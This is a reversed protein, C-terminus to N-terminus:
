CQRLCLERTEVCMRVNVHVAGLRVAGKRLTACIIVEHLIRAIQFSGSMDTILMRGSEIFFALM